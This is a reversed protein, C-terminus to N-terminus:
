QERGQSLTKLTFIRRQEPTLAGTACIYGTLRMRTARDTQKNVIETSRARWHGPAAEFLERATGLKLLDGKPDYFVSKLSLASASDIWNLVKSYGSFRSKPRSELIYCPRGDVPEKGRVDFDFDALALPELDEFTFQTGCFSSRRNTSFYLVRSVKKAAPAYLFQDPDAGAKRATMLGFGLIEDPATFCTYAYDYGDLATALHFVVDRQEAVGRSDSLEMAYTLREYPIDLNARVRRALAPGTVPPLAAVSAAALDNATPLDAARPAGCGTLLILGLLCIELSLTKRVTTM